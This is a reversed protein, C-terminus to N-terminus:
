GGNKRLGNLFSDAVFNDPYEQQEYLIKKWGARATRQAMTGDSVRGVPTAETCSRAAPRLLVDGETPEM